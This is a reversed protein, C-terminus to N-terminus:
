PITLDLGNLIPQWLEGSPLRRWLFLWEEEKTTASRGDGGSASGQRLHEQLDQPLTLLTAMHRAALRGYKFNGFPFLLDKMVWLAACRSRMDWNASRM